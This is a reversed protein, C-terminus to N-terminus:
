LLGWERWTRRGMLHLILAGVCNHFNHFLTSISKIFKWTLNFFSLFISVSPSFFMNELSNGSNQKRFCLIQFREIFLFPDIQNLDPFLIFSQFETHTPFRNWVFSLCDLSFLKCCTETHCTNNKQRKRVSVIDDEQRQSM